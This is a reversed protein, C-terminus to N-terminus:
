GPGGALHGPAAPGQLRIAGPRDQAKDPKAAGLAQPDFLAVQLAIAASPNAKPWVEVIRTEHQRLHGDKSLAMDLTFQTRQSVEPVDFTVRDRRLLSTDSEFRHTDHSIESGDAALLKWTFELKGPSFEVDHVTLRRDFRAGSYYRVEQEPMSFTVAQMVTGLFNIAYVGMVSAGMDRYGEVSLKGWWQGRGTYHQLASSVAAKDGLFKAIAPGNNQDTFWFEETSACAMGPHWDDMPHTGHVVADKQPELDAGSLFYSDPAYFATTAVNPHARQHNMCGGDWYGGSWGQNMYHWSTFNIRGGLSANGDSLYWFGPWIRKNVEDAVSALRAGFKSQGEGGVAYCGYWYCENSIDWGVCSPHSSHQWIIEVASERDRQWYRDNNILEWETGPWTNTLVPYHFVGLEDFIDLSWNIRAITTGEEGELQPSINPGTGLFTLPKGNLILHDGQVSLSRYGFRKRDTDQVAGNEAVSTCLCALVPHASTYLQLRKEGKPAFLKALAGEGLDVTGILHTEATQGPPITVTKSPIKVGAVASGEQTVAYKLEVTCPTSRMNQVRSFILLKNAPVDPVVLTQVVHVAPVARLWVDALGCMFNENSPPYDRHADNEIWAEPNYHDVYDDKMLAIDGRQLVVLENEGDLKLLGTVDRRYPFGGRAADDLRNGNLFVVGERFCRGVEIQIKEGRLWAPVTFKKRYWWGFQGKPPWVENNPVWTAQYKLNAPIAAPM